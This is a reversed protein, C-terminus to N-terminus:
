GLLTGLKEKEKETLILPNKSFQLSISFHL